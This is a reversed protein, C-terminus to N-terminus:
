KKEEPVLPLGEKRKNEIEQITGELMVFREPTSPHSRAYKMETSKPHTAGLKRFLNPGKNIDYGSNVLIYMGVYDAEREMDKSYAQQGAQMGIKSFAGGTNVGAVAAAIDFLIGAAGGALANQKMMKVHGRVYHAMEHSIVMALENDDTAFRMMGTTILINEGDCSANVDDSEVLLVNCDICTVQKVETKIPAGKRKVEITFTKDQGLKQVFKIFEKLDYPPVLGNISTVDDGVELGAEQAPSNEIIHYVKLEDGIGYVERAAEKYEPTFFSCSIMGLGSRERQKSAMSPSGKLIRFSVDSLREEMHRKEELVLCKQKHQELQLAQSSYTPSISKPAACGVLFLIACIWLIIKLGKM